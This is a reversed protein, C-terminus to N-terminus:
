EFFVPNSSLADPNIDKVLTTNATSGDSTWLESGHIADDASFLLKDNLIMFQQMEPDSGTASIKSVETTGAETGDSVWLADEETHVNGRAVFLLKGDVSHLERIASGFNGANIDKVPRAGTPTGAPTGDTVWLESGQIPENAVFYLKDGVATLFKPAFGASAGTFSTIPHLQGDRHAWINYGTNDKAVFYLSDDVVTLENPRSSAKGALVDYKHISGDLWYSFLELEITPDPQSFTNDAAMFLANGFPTLLGPTSGIFSGDGLNSPNPNIKAALRTGAETGDTRWLEQRAYNEDKATFYVEDNFLVTNGIRSSVNPHINKVLNTGAETGDSIYLETDGFADTASFILKGKYAILNAPHSSSTGSRIDKVMSTGSETGDTVWLEVGNIGNNANFFWKSGVQTFNYPNSNGSANIDKVFKTGAETGDTIWLENGSNIDSTAAFLAQEIVPVNTVPPTTVPPTTVPPTTEPDSSGGGSGGGCGTLVLTASLLAQALLSKTLMIKNKM